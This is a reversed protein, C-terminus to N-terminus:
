SSFSNKLIKHVCAFCYWSLRRGHRYNRYITAWTEVKSVIIAISFIVIFWFISIDGLGVILYKITKPKGDLYGFLVTHGNNQRWFIFNFNTEDKIVHWLSSHVCWNMIKFSHRTNSFIKTCLWFIRKTAIIYSVQFDHQENNVDFRFECIELTPPLSRDQIIKV